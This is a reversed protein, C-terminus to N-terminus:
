IVAVFDDLAPARRATFTRRDAKVPGRAEDM